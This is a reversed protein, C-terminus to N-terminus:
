PSVSPGSNGTGGTEDVDIELLDKLFEELLPDVFEGDEAFEVDSEYPNKIEIQYKAAIEYVATQWASFGESAAIIGDNAIELYDPEGAELSNQIAKLAQYQTSAADIYTQHIQILEPSTLKLEKLYDIFDTYSPMVVSTLVTYVQAESEYGMGIAEEFPTLAAEELYWFIPLEENIYIEIEEEITTPSSTENQVVTTDTPAITSGQGETMKSCGVLSFTVLTIVLIITRSRNM